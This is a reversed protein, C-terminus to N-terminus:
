SIEPVVFPDRYARKLHKNAEAAHEGVFRETQPDHTLIQSMKICPDKMSVKFNGLQEEMNDLIKGWVDSKPLISEAIDRSYTEGVQFAVNALNCWGTSAHGVEVEANLMSNDQKRVAKLFNGTHLFVRDGGRFKAIEKGQLDIAKGSGRQGLYYGGECAVVYGSEPGSFDRDAKVSWSDKKNPVQTMNSLALITPFTGTDFCVFHVNPTNGADGWAARGGVALIRKPLIVSDQYCVNRVDDMIHVGWNGMEGNGTNFDWHWDYHLKDRFIPQDAAPGLWLNYDIDKSIELPTQRKGIPERVGLRNAQVYLIKGLKKDEHLFKKAALQLQLDSRHQTGLQVVKKYKRAANVVQRGEWQTHSLPKEVYVDKGAQMAMISALCHWHNCTSVVVVDVRPDDLMKRFDNYGKAGEFNSAKAALTKDPDAIAVIRCGQQKIFSDSLQGGRWGMGMIGIGITDNASFSNGIFFTSPLATTAGVALGRKLFNRRTLSAM